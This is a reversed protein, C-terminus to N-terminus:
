LEKFSVQYKMQPTMDNKNADIWLRSCFILFVISGQQEVVINLELFSLDQLM